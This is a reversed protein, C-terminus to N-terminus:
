EEEPLRLSIFCLAIVIWFISLYHIKHALSYISVAVFAVLPVAYFIRKESIQERYKKWLSIILTIQFGIWFILAPFGGDCILELYSNHSGKLRIRQRDGQVIYNQKVFNGLGVGFLPSAMVVDKGKIFGEVRNRWSWSSFMGEARMSILPFFLGVIFLGILLLTLNRKFNRSLFFISAILVAVWTSRAFSLVCCLINFIFSGLYFIQLPKKKEQHWLAYAFPIGIMSGIALVPYDFIFGPRPTSRPARLFNLYSGDLINETITLFMWGTLTFVSLMMLQKFHKKSNIVLGALLSFILYVSFRILPNWNTNGMSISAILFWILFFILFWWAANKSDYLSHRKFLLLIFVSSLVFYFATLDNASVATEGPLLYLYQLPFVLIMMLFIREPHIFSHLWAFEVMLLCIILLIPISYRYMPFVILWAICISIVLFTIALLIGTKAGEGLFFKKSM